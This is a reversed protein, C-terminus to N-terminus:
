QAVPAAVFDDISETLCRVERSLRILLPALEEADIPTLGLWVRRRLTNELRPMLELLTGIQKSVRNGPGSLRLDRGARTPEGGEQALAERPRSLLLDRGKEDPTTLLFDVIRRVEDRSLAERRITQLVDVQNGAPLRVLERALTPTLLGVKLEERAETCLRELLALRRCVWSKHRGLLEGVEVQTLGDERVLAHVIWAEELERLRGGGRNLACMAAKARRDDVEIPRALLTEFSDLAKAAACRKFGDLLEWRDDQRCVVVPSVQGYRSLSGAMAQEATPSHIRFRGYREGLDELPLPQIEGLALSLSM